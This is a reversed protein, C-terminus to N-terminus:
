IPDPTRFTEFKISHPAGRRTSVEDQWLVEVIVRKITSSPLCEVTVRREFTIQTPNGPLDPDTTLGDNAVVDWITGGAAACGPGSATNASAELDGYAEERMQELLEEGYATGRNFNMSAASSRTSGVAMMVLGALGTVLILVTVMIEILTFGDSSRDRICPHRM